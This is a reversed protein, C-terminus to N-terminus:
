IEIANQEYENKVGSEKARVSESEGGRSRQKKENKQIM